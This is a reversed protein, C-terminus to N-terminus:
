ADTTGEGDMKAGCNPCYHYDHSEPSEGDTMVFDAGCASCEAITEGYWGEVEVWRGHVVPAVDAAAQRELVSVAALLGKERRDDGTLGVLGKIIAIAADREIYEPM